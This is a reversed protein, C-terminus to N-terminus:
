LQSLKQDELKKRVGIVQEIEFITNDDAKGTAILTKIYGTLLAILASVEKAELEIKM